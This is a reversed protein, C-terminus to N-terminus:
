KKDVLFSRQNMWAKRKEETEKEIREIDKATRKSLNSLIKDINGSM